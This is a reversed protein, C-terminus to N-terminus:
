DSVVIVFLLNLIRAGTPPRFNNNLDGTTNTGTGEDMGGMCLVCTRVYMRACARMGV